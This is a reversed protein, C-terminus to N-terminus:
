KIMLQLNLIFSLIRDKPLSYGSVISKLVIRWGISYFILIHLSGQGALGSDVNLCQDTMYLAVTIPLFTNPRLPWTTHTM